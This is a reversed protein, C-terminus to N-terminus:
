TNAVVAADDPAPPESQPPEGHQAAWLQEYRGKISRRREAALMRRAQRETVALRPQGQTGNHGASVAM